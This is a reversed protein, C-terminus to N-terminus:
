KKKTNKERSIDQNLNYHSKYETQIIIQKAEIQHPKIQSKINKQKIKYNTKNIM